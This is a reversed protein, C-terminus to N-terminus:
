RVFVSRGELRAVALVSNPARGASVTVKGRLELAHVALRDSGSFELGRDSNQISALLALQYASDHSM